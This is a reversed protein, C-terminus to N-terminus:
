ILKVSGGERYNDPLKVNVERSTDPKVLRMFANGAKRPSRIMGPLADLFDQLSVKQDLQNWDYIDKIVVSGDEQQEATFRGLTTKARYAPDLFSDRITKTISEFEGETGSKQTKTIDRYDVSTRGRTDEYSKIKRDLEERKKDTVDIFSRDESLEYSRLNPNARYRDRDSRLEAERAENKARTEDVLRRLYRLDEDTFDEETIPDKAGLVTEAFVRANVPIQKYLDM